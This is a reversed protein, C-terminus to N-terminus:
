VSIVGTCDDLDALKVYGVEQDNRNYLEVFGFERLREKVEYHRHRDSYSLFRSHYEVLLQTFPLHERDLLDELVDYESSEIDIKLIDIYEHGFKNMWNDLTNVKITTIEKGKGAGGVNSPRVSVHNPNSPLAVELVGEQNSLGEPTFFMKGKYQEVISTVYKISKDTPDFLFVTAGYEDVMGQDWSIDEGCGVGYVILPTHKLCLTDVSWGTHKGGMYRLSREHDRLYHSQGTKESVYVEVSLDSARLFLFAVSIFCLFPVLVRLTPKIEVSSKSRYM